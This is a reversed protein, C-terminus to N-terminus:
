LNKNNSILKGQEMLNAETSGFESKIPFTLGTAWVNTGSETLTIDDDYGANAGSIVFHKIRIRQGYLLIQKADKLLVTGTVVM